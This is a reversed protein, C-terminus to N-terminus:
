FRKCQNIVESARSKNRKQVRAGSVRRRARGEDGQGGSKSWVYVHTNITTLTAKNLKHKQENASRGWELKAYTKRKKVDAKPLKVAETTERKATKIGM